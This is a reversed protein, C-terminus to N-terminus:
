LRGLFGRIDRKTRLMPIDLIAGIKDPDAEIDKANVMYGQLKRSTVGFTCKKPNLRLRFQRIKDFFRKLVVLHDVRNSSKEKMDDVYVEVDQHIMDHFLTTMARQYTTGTNKLGFPMVRYCYTGWETIFSTKEMDELAMLIKGDKKPIPVVNALWEPYKVLRAHSLLPLRHQVISPDLRPMDEYSWAFVDLYSILLSVLNDREDTSLDLGIRLERPQDTTDFDVIKSDETAPSVRQDIPRLDSASSSDDDSDHQAIEDDIDFILLYEFISLDMFSSDHVDDFHSVFGLLIVFSLPPDVFDSVGKITSVGFLDFPSALKPQVTEDSQSMSIVLMEEIYKDHPVTGDLMDGIEVFIGQEDVENFGDIIEDSHMQLELARVFYNALSINYPRVLYDFLTHTLRARVREEDLTFGIFFLDDESHSIQLVLESSAFMDRISQVTIVQGDHIFKVKQHLSSPITGVITSFTTPSMLLEIELTGMVEKRISDYARVTQTSPGFDISIYLPRTHNSGKPPLDDDSFVICTARGVTMMHILGEPTTTIKVRIEEHSASGELPRAAIPPQQRAVRGGRIVYQIDPTHVDDVNPTHIYCPFILPEITTSQVSSMNPVLRFSTLMGLTVRGVEYIGYAVIPESESEDWSLM